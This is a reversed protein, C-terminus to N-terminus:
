KKRLGDVVASVVDARDALASMITEDITGACLLHLYTVPRTQGPRHIRKRTQEYNGLNYDHSYYVQYRARTFDVGTGGAQLQVALVENGTAQQWKALENKRGSLERCKRKGQKAMAAIDDLDHHFRGFVVVPEEQPLDDLAEGLMDMKETGLRIEDGDAGVGYGNCIQALRTMRALANAATIIGGDVEAAFDDMLSNYARQSKADLLCYRQEDIADPLQLVEESSVRYTMTSLLAQLEETNRYGTVQTIKRTLCKGTKPDRQWRDKGKAGPKAIPVEKQEVVAFRNRFSHYSPGFLDPQISRFQGFVDLQSHPMPTGTLGMRYSIGAALAAVTESQKGDPQKLKHVEDLILCDFDLGLLNGDSLPLHTIAEYNLAVAFPQDDCEACLYGTMLKDARQNVSGGDLALVQWDSGPLHKAFEGPWVRVVSKPCLILVRRCQWRDLLELATRTKGTGMDLALMGCGLPELFDAAAQQHPWLSTKQATATTM